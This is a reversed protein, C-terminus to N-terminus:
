ITLSREEDLRTGERFVEAIVLIILGDIIAFVNVSPQAAFSLGAASFHTMAYSGEFFLVASRALEGVIVAWAIRRVRTANAPAFPRGARLTRFLARLQSLVWLLLALSGTLIVLNAIFLLGKQPPFRLTGNLEGLEAAEIGLSPAAVQHAGPDLKVSVPIAMVVNPGAVVNPGDAGIQLGVNAGALVLVVILALFIAVAYWAANMVVSLLSAMSRNGMAKM